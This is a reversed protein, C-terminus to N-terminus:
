EYVIRLRYIPQCNNRKFPNYIININGIIEINLASQFNVRILNLLATAAKFIRVILIYERMKVCKVHITLKVIM